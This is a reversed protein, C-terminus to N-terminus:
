ARGALFGVAAAPQDKVACEVHVADIMAKATKIPSFRHQRMIAAFDGPTIVNLKALRAKLDDGALDLGMMECHQKFMNWAQEPKMYDFKSKLDFRRLAAQDLGDMLNTSAIFIGPYSEMQTLFENVQSVEWSRVADRRDRLFSDVEDIMLIAKDNAADKFVKAINKEAEGVYPSLLDSARKLVLPLGLREALWRGYATKGTGPPGYLCIRGSGCNGLGDAIQVLDVEANIYNINFNDPLQVASNNISDTFGQAKLTGEILFEISNSLDKELLESKISSVVSAARSIVAPALDQVCSLRSVAQATLIDGCSQQIISERKKKPPICMEVVQDFRRIYAPDIGNISNSVWLTPVINNELVNNLWAKSTSSGRKGSKGFLFFLDPDGGGFVDEIEDFVILAKSKKLFNQAARYSKLRRDGNISDGEHDECTVEFLDYELERALVKVLQTKGTGPDGYLLINVGKKGSHCATRLYPRLIALSTDIHDYDSLCLEPPESKKVTERLLMIPDDDIVNVLEAFSDSILGLKRELTSKGDKKVNLLGSQALAGSSALADRVEKEPIDLIISLVYNVKNLSLDGLMDTAEELLQECHVLIAFVLIKSEVASLCALLTLKSMNSRLLGEPIEVEQDREADAHM